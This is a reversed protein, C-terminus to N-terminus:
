APLPKRSGTHISFNLSNCSPLFPPPTIYIRPIREGRFLGSSVKLNRKEPDEAAVLVGFLTKNISFSKGTSPCNL